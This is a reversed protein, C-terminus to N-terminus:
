VVIVTGYDSQETVIDYAPLLCTEEEGGNGKPKRVQEMKTEIAELTMGSTEPVYTHIFYVSRSILFQWLLDGACSDRRGAVFM